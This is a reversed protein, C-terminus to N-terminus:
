SLLTAKRPRGVTAGALTLPDWKMVGGTWFPRLKAVEARSAPWDNWCQRAIRNAEEVRAEEGPDDWM